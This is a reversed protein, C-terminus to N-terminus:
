LSCLSNEQPIQLPLCDMVDQVRKSPRLIHRPLDPLMCTRQAVLGLRFESADSHRRIQHCVGHLLIQRTFPQFSEFTALRPEEPAFDFHRDLHAAMLIM